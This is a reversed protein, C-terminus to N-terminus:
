KQLIGLRKGLELFVDKSSLDFMDDIHLKINKPSLEDSLFIDFETGNKKYRKGFQLDLSLVTVGLAKFFGTILDMIRKSHYEVFEYDVSTLWDFSLLHEKTVLTKNKQLFLFVEFLYNKLKMGEKLPFKSALDFNAFSSISFVFPMVDLAYTEHERVGMENIYYTKIGCDSIMKFLLTSIKSRIIAIQPDGSYFVKLIGKKETKYFIKESNEFLIQRFSPNVINNM